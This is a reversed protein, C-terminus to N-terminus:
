IRIPVKSPANMVFTEDGIFLVTKLPSESSDRHCSACATRMDGNSTLKMKAPGTDQPRNAPVLPPDTSLTAFETYVPEAYLVGTDTHIDAFSTTSFMVAVAVFFSYMWKKM